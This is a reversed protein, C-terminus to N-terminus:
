LSAGNVALFGKEFVYKLWAPDGRFTLRCNNPSDERAVVEATGVVHGSLIHGGVEVNAKASREVNVRTGVDIQRINSLALTEQIADFSIDGGDIQTVTFCVGNVAVSAGTELEQCLEDPFAITFSYLGEKKDLTKIPLCDQVIGTYM